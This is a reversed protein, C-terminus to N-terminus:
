KLRLILEDTTLDGRWYVLLAHLNRTIFDEVQAMLRDLVPGALRIVPLRVSVVTWPSGRDARVKLRPLHRKGPDPSVWVIGNVGTVRSSLTSMEFLQDIERHVNMLPYEAEM